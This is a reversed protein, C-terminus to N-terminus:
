SIEGQNTTGAKQESLEKGSIRVPFKTASRSHGAPGGAYLGDPELVAVTDVDNGLVETGRFHFIKGGQRRRLRRGDANKPGPM